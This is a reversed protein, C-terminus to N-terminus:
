FNGFRLTRMTTFFMPEWYDFLEPTAGQAILRVQTSGHYLLRVWRKRVRSGDLFTHRAELTLLAGVAEATEIEIRCQRLARLGRVFGRRIAALDDAAVPTGLDRTEFALGTLVDAPDPAFFSGSTDTSLAHWDVPILM